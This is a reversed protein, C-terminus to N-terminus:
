KQEPPGFPTRMEGRLRRKLVKARCLMIDEYWTEGGVGIKEMGHTVYMTAYGPLIVMVHYESSGASFTPIQKIITRSANNNKRRKRYKDRRFFMNEERFVIPGVRYVNTPRIYYEERNLLTVIRRTAFHIDIFHIHLTTEGMGITIDPKEGVCALSLFPLRCIKFTYRRRLCTLWLTFYCKCKSFLLALFPFIVYYIILLVLIVAVYVLWSMYREPHQLLFRWLAPLTVGLHTFFESGTCGYTFFELVFLILLLILLIRILKGLWAKNKM